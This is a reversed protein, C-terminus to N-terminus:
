TCLAFTWSPICDFWTTKGRCLFEASLINLTSAYSPGTTIEAPLNLSFTSSGASVEISLLGNTASIPNTQDNITWTGDVVWSPVRIYLTFAKAAKVDYSVADSFPYFTDVAVSVVNEVIRHTDLSRLSYLSNVMQLRLKSM